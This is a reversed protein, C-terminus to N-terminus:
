RMRGAMTRALGAAVERSAQESFTTVLLSTVGNGKSFEVLYLTFPGNDLRYARAAAGIPAITIATADPGLLEGSPYSLADAAGQETRYLWVSSQVELPAANETILRPRWFTRRYGASRGWREYRKLAAEADPWLAAAAANDLPGTRDRDVEFSGSLPLVDDLTLVM